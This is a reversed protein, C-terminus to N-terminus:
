VGWGREAGQLIPAFCEPYTGEDNILSSRHEPGKWAGRVDSSPGSQQRSIPGHHTHSIVSNKCSLGHSWGTPTPRKEVTIFSVTERLHINIM